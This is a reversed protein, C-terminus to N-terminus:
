IKDKLETTLNTGIASPLRERRDRLSSQPRSHDRNGVGVTDSRSPSATLIANVSVSFQSRRTLWQERNM